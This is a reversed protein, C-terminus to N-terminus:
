IGLVTLRHTRERGVNCWGHKHFHFRTENLTAQEGFGRTLRYQVMNMEQGESGELTPCTCQMQFLKNHMTCVM